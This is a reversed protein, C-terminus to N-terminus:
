STEATVSPQKPAAFLELAREVVLEPREEQLFHGVGKVKEVQVDDGTREHKQFLVPPVAIDRTGYMVRTPVQLRQDTYRGAIVAPLERTLFTRYTLMTARARTSAKLDRGYIRQVDRGLNERDGAWRRVKKAVYGPRRLVRVALPSAMAFMYPTNRVYTLKRPSFPANPLPINLVMLREILEPRRLALLAGLWGGWDHGIWRVSDVGMGELVAAVDDAMNEKEFGEWAIDSWGFGRLDIALVRYREALAPIVHRWCYWHQPWGHVLVVPDGEGAEAVHFNLGRAPEFRHRVGEVQPM